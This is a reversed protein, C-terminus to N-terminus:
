HWQSIIRLNLPTQNLSPLLSAQGVGYLGMAKSPDINCASSATLVIHRLEWGQTASAKLVNFVCNVSPSLLESENDKPQLIFANATHTVVGSVGKVTEDLANSADVDPVVVVELRGKTEPDAKDTGAMSSKARVAGRM